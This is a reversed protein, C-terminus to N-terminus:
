PLSLIGGGEEKIEQYSKGELRMKFENSRNGIFIPHTHSDIFGPTVISQEADIIYSVDDIIESKIDIIKNNEILIEQNSKIDLIDLKTNWSYIKSINTIKTKM